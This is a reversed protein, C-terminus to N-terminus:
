EHASLEFMTESEFVGKKYTIGDGTQVSGFGEATRPDQNTTFGKQLIAAIAILRGYHRAIEVFGDFHDQGAVARLQLFGRGQRESPSKVQSDV